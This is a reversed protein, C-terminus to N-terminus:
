DTLSIESAVGLELERLLDERDELRNEANILIRGCDDDAALFWDRLTKGSLEAPKPNLSRKAEEFLERFTDILLSEFRSFWRQWLDGEEDCDEADALCYWQYEFKKRLMARQNM